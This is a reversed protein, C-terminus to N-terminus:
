AMFKAFGCICSWLVVTYCCVIHLLSDVFLHFIVIKLVGNIIADSVMFFKTIFKAFFYM